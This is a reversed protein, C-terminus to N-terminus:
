RSTEFEALGRLGRPRIRSWVYRTGEISLHDDDRYMLNGGIEAHCVDADCLADMPDVVHLDPNALTVAVRRIIGRATALSADVSARTVSCSEAPRVPLWRDVPRIRVCSRPSFNLSPIPMMLVVERREQLLLALDRALAREYTEAPSAGPFDASQFHGPSMFDFTAAYEAPTASYIPMRAILIVVRAAPELGRYGSDILVPCMRRWTLTADTWFETNRLYPCASAGIQLISAGPYADRMAPWFMNSHSDGIMVINPDRTYDTRICFAHRRMDEPQGYLAACRDELRMSPAWAFPDYSLSTRQPIGGTHAVVVGAVAAVGLLSVLRVGIRRLDRRHRLPLEILHYTLIAAVFAFIVAGIRLLRGTSGQDIDLIRLFSLPPWHWLYLPYSILGVYVVLRSSFITRNPLAKPGAAIFLAAGLTAPVAVGVFSEGGARTALISGVILLLGVVSMANSQWAARTDAPPDGPQASRALAGAALLGGTLLQWFRTFPLYFGATPSYSSIVVHSVLSALAIVAIVALTVKPRVRGAFLLALPWVLYFQEEVGLSWLHLLPNTDTAPDFYGAERALVLNPVFLASATVSDAFREMEDPMLILLALLSVGLLMTLLAPLIRRARRLYFGTITFTRARIGELILGSILYGSIVFFVDVGFFGGPLKNPFAHFVVVAGVALARLGDIDPRYSTTM